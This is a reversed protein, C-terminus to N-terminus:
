DDDHDDMRHDHNKDRGWRMLRYFNYKVKYGLYANAPDTLHIIGDDGAKAKSWDVGAFLKDISFAVLLKDLTPTVEIGHKRKLHIEFKRSTAFEVELSDEDHIVIANIYVSNSDPLVPGFEIEMKHFTLSDSPLEASIDPTSTGALVDVVFEGEVTWKNGSNHDDDEDDDGEHNQEDDDNKCREKGYEKGKLTVETVGLLFSKFIVTDSESAIRGGSMMRSSSSTEAVMDVKLRNLGPDSSDCGVAVLLLAIVSVYILQKKM